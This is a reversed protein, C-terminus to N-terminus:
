SQSAYFELLKLDEPYTLKHLKQSGMVFQPEIGLYKEVLQCDDYAVDESSASAHAKKIIEAEFGQPTAIARLNERNLYEVKGNSTDVITNVLPMIMTASKVGKETLFTILEMIETQSILPRASDHILIYNGSALKLGNEVTERRTEGSPCDIGAVIVQDVIASFTEYSWRWVEKGLLLEFQKQKGYRQGKGGAVIIASITPKDFM